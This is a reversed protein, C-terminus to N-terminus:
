ISILLFEIKFFTELRLFKEPLLVFLSVDIEMKCGHALISTSSIFNALKESTYSRCKKNTKIPPPQRYIIFNLVVWALCIKSILGRILILSTPFLLCSLMDKISKLFAQTKTFRSVSILCRLCKSNIFLGYRMIVFNTLNQYNGM